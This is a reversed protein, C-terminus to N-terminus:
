LRNQSKVLSALAADRLRDVDREGARAADIIRKAMLERVLPSQWTDRLEDCAADFAAGMVRTDADDFVVRPWFPLISGVTGRGTSCVVRAAALPVGLTPPKVRCSDTAGTLRSRAPAAIQRSRALLRIHRNGRRLLDRCRRGRFVSSRAASIGIAVAQPSLDGGEHWLSHDQPPRTGASSPPKRSSIRRAGDFTM